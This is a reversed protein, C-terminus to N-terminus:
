GVAIVLRSLNFKSPKELVLTASKRDPTLEVHYDGDEKFYRPFVLIKEVKDLGLSAANIV